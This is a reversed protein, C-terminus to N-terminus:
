HPKSPKDLLLYQPEDTSSSSSGACCASAWLDLGAAHCSSYVLVWRSGLTGPLSVAIATRDPLLWVILIAAHQLSIRATCLQRGGRKATVWVREGAGPYGSPPPSYAAAAHQKVPPEMADPHPGPPTSSGASPGAAGYGQPPYAAPAPYPGSSPQPPYPSLGPQPPYAGSSPGATPSVVPYGGACCTFSM